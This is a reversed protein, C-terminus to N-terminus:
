LQPAAVQERCMAIGTCPANNLGHFRMNGLCSDRPVSAVHVSVVALLMM